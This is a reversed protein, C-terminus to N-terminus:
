VQTSLELDILTKLAESIDRHKLNILLIRTDILDVDQNEINKELRRVARCVYQSKNPKTSLIRVCDHDMNYTKLSKM